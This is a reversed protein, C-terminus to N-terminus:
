GRQPVSFPGEWIAAMAQLHGLTDLAQQREEPSIELMAFEEEDVVIQGGGSTIILDLALDEAYVHNTEIRAPRTINCYWGKHHDDDVDYIAFVNYWRDSYYTEVFRDGRRLLVGQFDLDQRDFHAELTLSTTTRDLVVGNYHWVERGTEDLKHVTIPTRM